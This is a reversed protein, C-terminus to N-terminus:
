LIIAGDINTFINNKLRQETTATIITRSKVNAILAIDRIIILTDRIGKSDAMDMAKNLRNVEDTSLNINQEELRQAAHKSFKISEKKSIVKQFVQHFSENNQHQNIGVNGSKYGIKNITSISYQNNM